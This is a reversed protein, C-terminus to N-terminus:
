ASPMSSMRERVVRLWNKLPRPLYTRLGDRLGAPQSWAELALSPAIQPPDASIARLVTAYDAAMREVTFGGAVKRRAGASLEHLRARSKDLSGALRAAAAADGVPFLLGDRGDDIITDTVGRLSSAVPVCGAAMAEVLAMPLGEYRSPMLFVDHAAMLVPVRAADVAGTYHIRPPDHPMAAKLRELDPGDGAITLMASSPLRRAIDPLWLVGKSADEVRGLFLLRLGEGLPRPPRDVQPYADTSIANPVVSIHAQRFHHHKVLDDRCRQSVCVTAHVHDRIARAAAYTGPTINHVVMLRLIDPRLYRVINTQVRDGLVNVVVGEYGGALVARELRRAVAREDDQAEIEVLTGLAADREMESTRTKGRPALGLWRLDIGDPALGARLHKFVSYTGGLHPLVFYAIKM